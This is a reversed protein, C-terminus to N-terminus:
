FQCKVVSVKLTFDFNSYFQTNKFNNGIFDLSVSNIVTVVLIFYM